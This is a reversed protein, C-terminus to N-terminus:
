HLHPPAELLAKRIAAEIEHARMPKHLLAAFRGSSEAQSLYGTMFVVRLDPRMLTAQRALETGDMGAMVLDTFLVDVHEEALMRMAEYGNGAVISRFEDESLLEPLIQRVGEDDEVFLVTIKQAM